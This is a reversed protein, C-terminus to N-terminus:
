LGPPTSRAIEKGTKADLLLLLARQAPLSVDAAAHSSPLTQVVSEQSGAVPQAWSFLTTEQSSPLAQVSFSTQPPPLQAPTSVDATFHLSPLTQVLSAQSGAVPQALTFL